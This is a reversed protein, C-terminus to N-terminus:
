PEVGKEEEEEEVEGPIEPIAGNTYLGSTYKRLTNPELLWPLSPTFKEKSVMDEMAYAMDKFYRRWWALDPLREWAKFFPKIAVRALTVQDSPLPAWYHSDVYANCLEIIKSIPAPPAKKKYKGGLTTGKDKRPDYKHLSEELASKSDEFSPKSSPPKPTSGGHDEEKKEKEKEKEKHSM